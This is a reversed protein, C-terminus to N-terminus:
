GRAPYIGSLAICFNLVLYPQLNNHPQSGGAAAVASSSLNVAASSLASVPAYVPSKGRGAVGGFVAGSPSSTQSGAACAAPHSHSPLQTQLVTVSPEGGTEGIVRDTLGPGQGQNMQLCGQLNPLAFTSTGNGGYYTGLLSFLATYQSIPLIQGNCQAWEYPAFTCGFVRIEGLFQDSM